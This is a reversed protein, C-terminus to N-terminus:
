EHIRAGNTSPEDGRDGLTIVPSVDGNESVTLVEVEDLLFGTDLVLDPSELPTNSVTTGM